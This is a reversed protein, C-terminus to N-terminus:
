WGRLSHTVPGSVGFDGEEPHPYTLSDEQEPDVNELRQPVRTGRVRSLLLPFHM